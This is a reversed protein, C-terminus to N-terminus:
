DVTPWSDHGLTSPHLSILCNTPCSRGRRVRRSTRSRTRTVLQFEALARLLVHQRADAAVEWYPVVPDLLQITVYTRSRDRYTTARVGPCECSRPCSSADRDFPSTDRMPCIGSRGRCPFTLRTLRPRPSGRRGITGRTPKSATFLRKTTIFRAAM